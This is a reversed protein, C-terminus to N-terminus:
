NKAGNANWDTGISNEEGTILIRSGEQLAEKGGAIVKSSLDLGKVVEVLGDGLTGGLQIAQKRALGTFTDAVWVFKGKEESQVLQKPIFLRLPESSDTKSKPHEPSLFTVDVLMEPKLLFPSKELGVKVELTNKQINALSSIFLVKGPLPTALAPSNIHVPQGPRVHALDDFRVDVRIQLKDPQYMTIVTSADGKGGQGMGSTVSSGPVAILNLVRGPVPAHIVMRDFRLQAEAVAVAAAEVKASAADLKARTEGLAKKEDNKLELKKGLAESRAFLAKRENTLSGLRKHLDNVRAEAEEQKSQARDLEIKAIVQGATKKSQLDQQFFQLQAEAQKLEFPLQALMTEVKALEARAAAATAELQVPYKYNTEAAELEAKMQELEARALKEKAQASKLSLEADESVLYALKQGAKVEEDEVVLLQKVIGSSLAAVRIATPRPEVWGAAKFLSTGAQQVEARSTFVPVVTVPYRPLYLDRTAWAVVGAFGLLLGFPIVYRSWLHRKPGVSTKAPGERRVALERLDINSQM